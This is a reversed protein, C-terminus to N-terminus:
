LARAAERSVKKQRELHRKASLYRYVDEVRRSGADEFDGRAFRVLWSYPVGAGEAIPRLKDGRTKADKLLRLAADCTHDEM